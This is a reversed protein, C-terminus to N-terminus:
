SRISAVFAAWRSPRNLGADPSAVARRQAARLADALSRGQAMEQHMWTLLTRTAHDDVDWLSGLVAGAGAGLFAHALSFSGEGAVNPGWGTRCAALVVVRVRRLHLATIEGALVDGTPLRDASPFELRSLAPDALNATAHGAFHVIDHDDLHTLFEHKDGHYRQTLSSPYLAAIGEQEEALENLVPRGALNSGFIGVSPMAPLAAAPSSQLPALTLSPTVIVTARDVLYRNTARDILATLPINFIPGDPVVILRTKGAIADRLPGMLWDDLEVLLARDEGADSQLRTWLTRVTDELARPSVALARHTLGRDTLLWAHVGSDLVGYYIVATDPPLAAVAAAPSTPRATPGRVSALLWRARSQELTALAHEPDHRVGLQFDVVTRAVDFNRQLHSMRLSDSAIREHEAELRALAEDYDRAAQDRDGLAVRALGRSVLFGPIRVTAAAYRVNDLAADATALSDRPNATGNVELRAGMLETDFRRQYDQDPVGAMTSRAEALAALADRQRGLQSLARARHAFALALSPQHQWARDEAILTDTLDLAVEPLRAELSTLTAQVLIQHRIRPSWLRSSAALAARHQQWAGEIDGLIRLTESMLSHVNASLDTVGAADFHALARQYDALAAPLDGRTAALLALRWRAMGAITRYDNAEAAETVALLPGRVSEGGGANLAATTAQYACELALPHADRGTAACRGFVATADGLRDAGQLRRGEAYTRHLAALRRRADPQTAADIRALMADPGRDSGRRDFAAALTRAAIVSRDAAADDAGTAGAWRELVDDVFFDRIAQPYQGLLKDVAASEGADLSAALTATVTPFPPILEAQHRALRDRAEAAWPGSPDRKLYAQWAAAAEREMALGELALARNFYAADFNPDAAIARDAAALAQAYDVSAERQVARASYAAALDSEIAAAPGDKRSAEDLARVAEDYEGLLLHAVGLAHLTTANREAAAADKAKAAAALLHFNGTANGGRTTSSVAYPLGAIRGAVPRTGGAAALLESYPSSRLAPVLYAGAAIVVSAAIALAAVARRTPFRRVVPATANAAGVHAVADSAMAVTERCRECHALHRVVRGRGATDLTGDVFQALTELSECGDSGPAEAEHM